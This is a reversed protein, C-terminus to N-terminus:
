ETGNMFRLFSLAGFIYFDLHHFISFLMLILEVDDSTWPSKMQDQNLSVIMNM